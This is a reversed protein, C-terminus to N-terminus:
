LDDQRANVGKRIIDKGFKQRSQQLMNDLKKMKELKKEQIEKQSRAQARAKKKEEEKKKKEKEKESDKLRQENKISLIQKQITDKTKKSLCNIELKKMKEIVGKFKEDMLYNLVHITKTPVGVQKSFPKRHVENLLDPDDDDVERLKM